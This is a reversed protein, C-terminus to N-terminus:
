LGIRRGRMRQGGKRRAEWVRVVLVLAFLVIDAVRARHDEALWAPFLEDFVVAPVKESGAAGVALLHAAAGLAVAVALVLDVAQLVAWGHEELRVFDDLEPLRQPLFDLGRGAAADAGRLSGLAALAFLLRRPRPVRRLLARPSVRPSARPSARATACILRAHPVALCRTGWRQTLALASRPAAAAGLDGGAFPMSPTLFVLIRGRVALSLLREDLRHEDCVFLRTRHRPPPQPPTPHQVSSQQPM